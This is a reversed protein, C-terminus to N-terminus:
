TKIYPNDQEIKEITLKTRLIPIGLIHFRERCGMVAAGLPAMISIKHNKVDNNNTCRTEDKYHGSLDM